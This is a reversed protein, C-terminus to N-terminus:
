SATAEEEVKLAARPLLKKLRDVPTWCANAEDLAAVVGFYLHGCGLCRGHARQMAAVAFIRGLRVESGCCATPKVVQVLDGAGIV